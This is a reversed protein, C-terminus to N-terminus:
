IRGKRGGGQTTGRIDYSTRTKWFTKRGVGGIRIKLTGQTCVGEEEMEVLNEKGTFKEAANRSSKGCHLSFQRRQNPTTEATETGLEGRGLGNSFEGTKGSKMLGTRLGKSSTGHKHYARHPPPKTEGIKETKVTQRGKSEEAVIKQHKKHEGRGEGHV